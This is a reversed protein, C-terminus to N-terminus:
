FLICFDPAFCLSRRASVRSFISKVSPIRRGGDLPDEEVPVDAGSTTSRISRGHREFTHGTAIAGLWVALVAIVVGGVDDAIYHWGFYLTSIVTLGFFAWAAVKILRHRVTYQAIMAIILTLSVHLSAFGAVSQISDSFPNLAFRVDQRSNWLSDQLETVATVDLDRYLWPYWFTPGMTPILYYSITGLAWNLCNATAFWYGYSIQRSWVLWVILTIPTLPLYLVYIFAFFEAAWTEGFVQHLATAPEHGFLLWLDLEHLMPDKMQTFFTTLYNKLNRYSVYTVYFCTLGIVVLAIRERTWHEDVIARAEARVGRLNGRARWLSRPVVDVLFAGILMAPLRVWAPGLFGDPDRLREGLALSTVLAVIGMLLAVGVVM